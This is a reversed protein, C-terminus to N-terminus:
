LKSKALQVLKEFAPADSIALESLMKRNLEVKVKRLGEMLRSYSIGFARAAASIRIIWLGRYDRKKQKRGFYADVGAQILTEKMSRYLRRRGGYYGKAAKMMRKKRRHRAVNSKVRPM